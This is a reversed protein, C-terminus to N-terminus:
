LFRDLEEVTNINIFSEGEPDIDKLLTEAIVYANSAKIFDIMSVPGKKLMQEALSLVKKKYIGLLPHITGNFECVVVDSKERFNLITRIVEEKISPMDCAVVFAADYSFAVLASFIGGLPGRQLYLDAVMPIGCHFYIDPSNTSLVVVPFFKKLLISNKQILNIGEPTEILGKPYPFRRNSGGALILGM